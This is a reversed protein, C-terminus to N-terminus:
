FDRVSGVVYYMPFHDSGIDRLKKLEGIRFHNSVFLQDLPFGMIPAYVPFTATIGRGKLPDLLGSDRLFKRTAKSWAVDNLDGAVIVKEQPGM